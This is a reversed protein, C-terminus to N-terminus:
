GELILKFPQELAEAIWRLFRAADAGDIVRHDYSLSLPLVLRPEFRGDIFIPEISARSVGLIAVEPSNIIPSFYTGGIGGLNTVTFTGGQMEELTLKRSRARESLRSLEVSLEIINKKDVDRIVPVLLGRDTDVAVGIHYYRKLIIEGNATDVSSNFQPFVRLASAAVKLVIATVTLKGGAEEAKKGYEKRLKELNTIDAKDHQTVHPARWAYSLHEATKRRVNTMPIREVDGWRTFDPLQAEPRIGITEKAKSLLQRAYSKVDEESIRGGPGSGPVQGIDIGIERALRRVSPAAPIIGQSPQTTTAKRGFSVVEGRMEEPEEKYRPLEEKEEVEAKVEEEKERPGVREEKKKLEKGEVRGEGKEEAEGKPEVEREAKKEVEQVGIGEDITLLLQGVKVKDGERVRIERIRGAIPAPVEIAAKDTELEMVPQGESVMDGTSVLIKIVDGSEVNEGLEPLRFETVM